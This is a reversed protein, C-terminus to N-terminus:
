KRGTNVLKVKGPLNKFLDDNTVAKMLDKEIQTTENNRLFSELINRATKGKKATGPQLKARFKYKAMTSYPAVMPIAFLLTDEAHPLATLESIEAFDIIVDPEQETNTPPRPKKEGTRAAVQKALKATTPRSNGGRGRAKKKSRKPGDSQLMQMIAAREDEDQDGYKEKIKKNKGKKGRVQTDNKRKSADLKEQKWAPLARQKKGRQKGM